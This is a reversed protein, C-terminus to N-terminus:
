ARKFQASLLGNKHLGYGRGMNFRSAFGTRTVEVTNLIVVVVVYQADVGRERGGRYIVFRVWCVFFCEWTKLWPPGLETSRQFGM